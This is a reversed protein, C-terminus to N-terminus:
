SRGYVPIAAGHVARAADSALFLMVDAVAEPAVWRSYDASPMAARNPPTDILGPLVCNVNIGADKLEASLSETLSVVASKSASYVSAGAEGHLAARSAVNIVKGSGQKLLYPVVARCAVFVTRANLGMIFDGVELSTEQLPTGGHYGGVTNILLDICGFREVATQVMREVDTADNLDVGEVLLYEPGELLCDPGAEIVGQLRGVGRDVLVLRAGAQRFRQAVAAGLNGAAGTIIVVRNTLDFM